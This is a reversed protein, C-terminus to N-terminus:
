LVGATRLSNFFEYSIVTSSLLKKKVASEQAEDLEIDSGEEVASAKVVDAFIEEETLHQLVPHGGDLELQDQINEQLNEAEGAVRLLKSTLIIM